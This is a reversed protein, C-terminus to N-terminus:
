HRFNRPRKVVAEPLESIVLGDVYRFVRQYFSEGEAKVRPFRMLLTMPAVSFFFTDSLNSKSFAPREGGLGSGFKEAIAFDASRM